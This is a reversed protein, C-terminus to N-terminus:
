KREEAENRDHWEEAADFSGTGIANAYTRQAKEAKREERLDDARSGAEALLAARAKHGKDNTIQCAYIIRGGLGPAWNQEDAYFALVARLREAEAKHPCESKGSGGCQECDGKVFTSVSPEHGSGKCRPCESADSLAARAAASELAEFAADGDFKAAKDDDVIARNWRVVEASAELLLALAEQTIAVRTLSESKEDTFPPMRGLRITQRLADPIETLESELEAIRAQQGEYGLSLADQAATAQRVAEEARAQAAALEAQVCPWCVLSKWASGTADTNPYELLPRKEGCRDCAALRRTKREAM